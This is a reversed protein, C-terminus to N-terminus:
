DAVFCIQAIRLCEYAVPSFTKELTFLRNSSTQNTRCTIQCLLFKCPIIQAEIWEVQEHETELFGGAACFVLSLMTFILVMVKRQVLSDSHDLLRHVRLIRLLKLIRVFRFFGFDLHTSGRIRSFSIQLLNPAITIFDVASELSFLHLLRHRAAYTRVIFEFLFVFSCATEM